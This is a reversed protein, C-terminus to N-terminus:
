YPRREVVLNNLCLPALFSGPCTVWPKVLVRGQGYTLPMIVAEEVVLIRDAEQYLEMRRAHDTVREAEEVLNDFRANHWRPSTVGQKSHFPVRLMYDPDPYDASWGMMTLDASDSMLREVFAGWELNQPELDLRLNQRWSSRLFSIVREGRSGTLHLWTVQPFGQGGPYGAQALLRRSREPDYALGLGPSHGPMGPPVFGGTGPLRQDQFAETTLSERDIAHVFAGRVRVDDFPPRDARFILYLTVPQPIFVLEHGFAARARAVTHPDANFMSVTDVLDAAYAELAPGFETFVSCEVREVNGPFRGHFFPNRTLMLQAGKEGEVLQYAGNSVLNGAETWAQGYREVAWRPLPYAVTHALLYPLYATPAELHVELTLDDLAIAGVEDPDDIEGEGFARANRLAYLLHAVRSGSSPDLNRKWAYEFDAATVATGDNWRVGERLYFVYKTGGHAVDWREAVAPLVNHAEGVRVLGEFLQNAVFRSVDDGIMGPDLTVPQELAFRLVAPLERVQPLDSSGRLPEWLDFAADYAEQARDPDFAATYVLGLKMLTKAALEVQDQQRLIGVAQRYFREAEAHAYLARAQDGALLLYDVAKEPIGAMQYHRGLQVAIEETRGRYLEELIQAVDSHLLQREGESLSNYLYGQFLAHAFRYRSLRQGHFTLEGQERVLRHRQELEQSLARL